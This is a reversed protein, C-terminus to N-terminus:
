PGHILRLSLSGKEVVLHLIVRTAPCCDQAGVHASGRPVSFSVSDVACRRGFYRTLGRAEIM